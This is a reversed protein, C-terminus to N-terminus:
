QAQHQTPQRPNNDAHNGLKTLKVYEEYLNQFRETAIVDKFVLFQLTWEDAEPYDKRMRCLSSGLAWIMEDQYYKVSM